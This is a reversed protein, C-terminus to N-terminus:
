MVHKDYIIITTYRLVAIDYPPEYYAVELKRIKKKEECLIEAKM